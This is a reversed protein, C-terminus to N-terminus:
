LYRHLIRRSVADLRRMDPVLYRIGHSDVILRRYPGLRHVDEESNLLFRTPGRDTDVLWQCQDSIASVSVIRQLLPVFERRGLEAMLVERVPPPLTQPDEILTLEHGAADCIGIWHDPDTFPFAHSAEVGVFREGDADILVLQGWSDRNLHFPSKM